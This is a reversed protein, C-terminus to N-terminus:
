GRPARVAASGVVSGGDGDDATTRWKSRSVLLRMVRQFGVVMPARELLGGVVVDPHRVGPCWRACLRPRPRVRTDSPHLRRQLAAFDDRGENWCVLKGDLVVDVDLEAVAGVIEPFHLDAAVEAVGRIAEGPGL